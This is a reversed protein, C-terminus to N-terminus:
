LFEAQWRDKKNLKKFIPNMNCEYEVGFYEAIEKATRPKMFYKVMANHKALYRLKRKETMVGHKFAYKLGIRYANELYDLFISSLLNKESDSRKIGVLKCMEEDFVVDQVVKFPAEAIAEDM